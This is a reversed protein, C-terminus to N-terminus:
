GVAIKPFWYRIADRQYGPGKWCNLPYRQDSKPRADARRAFSVFRGDFGRHDDVALIGAYSLIHCLTDAEADNSKIINRIAKKLAGVSKGTTEETAANLIAKLAEWDKPSPSVEPLRAFMELDYASFDLDDHRVGGWKHREFNLIIFDKQTLSCKRGFGCTMCLDSSFGRTRMFPHDAMLHLYAFSGLASRYELQRSTLSWVFAASVREASIGSLSEFAWAVCQEHTLERKPPAFGASELYVIEDRTLDLKSKWGSSSWCAKTLLKFARENSM